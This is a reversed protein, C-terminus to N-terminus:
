PYATVGVESQDLGKLEMEPAVRLSIFRDLVTLLAMMQKM